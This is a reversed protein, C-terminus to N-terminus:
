GFVFYYNNLNDDFVRMENDNPNENLYWERLHRDFKHLPRNCHNIIYDGNNANNMFFKRWLLPLNYCKMYISIVNKRFEGKISIMFNNM